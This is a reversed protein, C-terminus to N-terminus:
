LKAREIKIQDEIQRLIVFAPHNTFGILEVVSLYLERLARPTLRSIQQRELDDIASQTAKKENNVWAFGDWEHLISPRKPVAISNPQQDGEYYNGDADIFQNSIQM